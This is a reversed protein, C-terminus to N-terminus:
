IFLSHNDNMSDISCILIKLVTKTLFNVFDGDVSSQGTGVSIAGSAVAAAGKATSTSASLECLAPISGRCGDGRLEFLARGAQPLFILSIGIDGVELAEGIGIRRHFNQFRQVAWDQRM